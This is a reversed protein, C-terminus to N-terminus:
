GSPQVRLLRGQPDDTLVYLAGDPGQRVDRVREGVPLMSEAVVEGRGNLQLRRVGRAVLGGAFLDGRWSPHRDGLMVALGSPAITDMWVRQPDTYGPATSSPAVPAGTSYELSHSVLPWGHNGSPRLLNLEDGGRSGHETAWVRQHVPDYALGQINRHGLSWVAPDALGAGPRGTAFPNDPPISGDDRLRLVKGLHSAPDQAQLRIWAGDLSLPPNGGDGISVLLTGDGLWLLRSGFHQGGRKSRNVEFIVEWDHLRRGDFRARAVRTGNAKQSGHAYSFYVWGNEEFRPHIAIDLLGGQSSAFLQGAVVNAAVPAVGPVPEPDLRGNRVIRLRGPRETILLQEGGPLWAMGWPHELGEVVTTLTVREVPLKAPDPSLLSSRDSVDEDAPTVTSGSSTSCRSLGASLVVIAAASLAAAICPLPQRGPM